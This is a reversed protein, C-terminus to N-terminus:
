RSLWPKRNLIRIWVRGKDVSPAIQIQTNWQKLYNWAERAIFLWAWPDTFPGVLCWSSHIMSSLGAHYASSDSLSSTYFLIWSFRWYLKTLSWSMSSVDGHLSHRASLAKWALEIGSFAWNLSIFCISVTKFDKSLQARGSESCSGSQDLVASM